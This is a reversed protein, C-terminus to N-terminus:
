AAHGSACPVCANLRSPEGFLSQKRFRIQLNSFAKEAPSEHVYLLTVAYLPTIWSTSPCCATHFRRSRGCMRWDWFPENSASVVPTPLATSPQVIPASQVHVCTCGIRTRHRYVSDGHLAGRDFWGNEASFICDSRM